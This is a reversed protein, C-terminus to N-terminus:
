DFLGRVYGLKKKLSEYNPGFKDLLAGYNSCELLMEESAGREQMFSNRQECAWTMLDRRSQLPPKWHQSFLDDYRKQLRTLTKYEDDLSPNDFYFACDKLLSNWKAQRFQPDDGEVAFVETDQSLKLPMARYDKWDRKDAYSQNIGQRKEGIYKDFAEAFQEEFLKAKAKQKLQEEM